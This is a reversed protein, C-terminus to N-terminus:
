QGCRNDIVVEIRCLPEKCMFVKGTSAALFLATSGKSNQHDLGGVVDVQVLCLAYMYPMTRVIRMRKEVCGCWQLKGDERPGTGLPTYSDLQWEWKASVLQCERM